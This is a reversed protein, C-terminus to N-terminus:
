GLKLRQQQSLIDQVFVQQGSESIRLKFRDDNRRLQRLQRSLFDLLKLPM